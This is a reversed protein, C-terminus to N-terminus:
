EHSLEQVVQDKEEDSLPTTEIRSIQSDPSPNM